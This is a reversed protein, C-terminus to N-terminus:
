PRPEPTKEEHSLASKPFDEVEPSSEDDKGAEMMADILAEEPYRATDRSPPPPTADSGSPSPPRHGLHDKLPGKGIRGEDQRANM